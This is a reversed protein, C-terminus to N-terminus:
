IVFRLNCKKHVLRLTSNDKHFNFWELTIIRDNFRSEVGLDQTQIDSYIIKNLKIFDLFVNEFPKVHLGKHRIM